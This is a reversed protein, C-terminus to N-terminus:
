GHTPHRPDTPWGDADIATSYGRAEEGQADSDHCPACLSEFPGAFFTEPNAKSDRDVHHCVTAITVRGRKRCRECVPRKTLQAKRIHQWRATKYLRRYAEAEPSRRDPKPM